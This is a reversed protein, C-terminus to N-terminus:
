GKICLRDLRRLQRTVAGGATRELGRRGTCRCRRRGSFRGQGTGEQRCAAEIHSTKEAKNRDCGTHRDSECCGGAGGRRAARRDGLGGGDVTDGGHASLYTRLAAFAVVPAARPSNQTRGGAAAR